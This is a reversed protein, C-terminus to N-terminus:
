KDIHGNIDTPVDIKLKSYVNSENVSYQSEDCGNLMTFLFIIWTLQALFKITKM